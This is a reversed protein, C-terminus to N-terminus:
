GILHRRVFIVWVPLSALLFWHAVSNYVKVDEDIEVEVPELSDKIYETLGAVDGEAFYQGGTRYSIEKLVDDVLYFVYDIYKGDSKAYGTFEGDVYQPVKAGGPEGVGVTVVKIGLTICDSVAKEILKREDETERSVNWYFLEGDSFLVIIKPHDSESFKAAVESIPKGFGTDGGPTSNIDLVDKITAKLYPYDEIGVFPVHSRAINTMGFLSIKVQRLDEMRSVIDYLIPKVRNLVTPSGLEKVAGMSRTVDVLLTVEGTKETAATAYYGIKPLALVVILLGMLLGAMVYKEIQRIRMRRIVLPFLAAAERKARWGLFGLLFLVPPLAVLWWLIGPNEFIM